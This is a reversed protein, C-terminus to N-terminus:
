SALRRASSGAPLHRPQPDRQRPPATYENVPAKDAHTAATTGNYGRTVTLTVPSSTAPASTVLMQESDVQIVDNM